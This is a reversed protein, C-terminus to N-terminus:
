DTEEQKQLNPLNKVQEIVQNICFLGRKENWTLKEKTELKEKFYYLRKLWSSDMNKTYYGNRIKFIHAIQFYRDLGTICLSIFYFLFQLVYIPVGFLMFTLLVLVRREGKCLDAVHYGAILSNIILCIYITVNIFNIEIM